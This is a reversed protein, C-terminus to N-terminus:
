FEIATQLYIEACVQVSALDVGQEDEHACEVFISSRRGIACVAGRSAPM